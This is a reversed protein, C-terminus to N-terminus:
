ESFIQSKFHFYERNMRFFIQSKSLFYERNMRVFIHSKFHFYERNMRVFIHSKFRFYGRNMCFFIQSECYSSSSSMCLMLTGRWSFTHSKRVFCGSMLFAHQCTQCLQGSVVEISGTNMLLLTTSPAPVMMLAQMSLAQSSM